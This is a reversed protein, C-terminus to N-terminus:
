GGRKVNEIVTVCDIRKASQANSKDIKKKWQGDGDSRSAKDDGHRIGNQPANEEDIEDDTRIWAVIWKNNILVSQIQIPDRQCSYYNYDSSM